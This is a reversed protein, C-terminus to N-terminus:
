KNPELPDLFYFELPSIVGGRLNQCFGFICDSPNLCVGPQVGEGMWQSMTNFPEMSVLGFNVITMEFPTWLLSKRKEKELVDM